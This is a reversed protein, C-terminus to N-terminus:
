HRLSQLESMHEESRLYVYTKGTGTEMEISFHPCSRAALPWGELPANADPVEIEFREQVKRTNARLLDESLILRNGVGFESQVQGEFLGSDGQQYVVSYEPQQLPQGDFLDVVSAVADLQYQQQADFQIKM